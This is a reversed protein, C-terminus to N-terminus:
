SACGGFNVSGHTPFVTFNFSLSFLFPSCFKFATLRRWFGLFWQVVRSVDGRVYVCGEGDFFGAIYAKEIETLPHEAKICM